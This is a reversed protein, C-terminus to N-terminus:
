AWRALRCEGDGRHLPAIRRVSIGHLEAGRTVVNESRQRQHRPRRWGRSASGTRRRCRRRSRPRPSRDGAMPVSNRSAQRGEPDPRRLTRDAQVGIRRNKAYARGDGGISRASTASGPRRSATPPCAMAVLFRVVAVRRAASLHLNSPFEPTSSRASTPFPQRGAAGLRHGAPDRGHDGRELTPKASLPRQASQESLEASNVASCYGGVPLRRDGSIKISDPRDALSEKLARLIRQPLRGTGEGKPWRRRQAPTGPGAIEIQADKTRQNGIDLAQQLSFTAPRLSSLGTSEIALEAEADTLAVKEELANAAAAPPRAETEALTARLKQTRNPRRIGSKKALGSIPWIPSHTRAAISPTM